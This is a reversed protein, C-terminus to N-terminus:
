SKHCTKVCCGRAISFCSFVFRQCFLYVHGTSVNGLLRMSLHSFSLFQSRIYTYFNKWLLSVNKSLELISYTMFQITTVQWYTVVIYREHWCLKKWIRYIIPFKKLNNITFIIFNYHHWFEVVKLSM